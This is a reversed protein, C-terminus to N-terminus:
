HRRQGFQFIKVPPLRRAVDNLQHVLGVVDQAIDLPHFRILALPVFRPNARPERRNVPTPQILARRRALRLPCLNRFRAAHKLGAHLQIHCLDFEIAVLGLRKPKGFSQSESFGHALLHRIREEVPVTVVIGEFDLGLTTFAPPLVALFCVDM